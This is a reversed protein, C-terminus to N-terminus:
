LSAIMEDLAVALQRQVSPGAAELAADVKQHYNDLYVPATFSTEIAATPNDQPALWLRVDVSWRYRGGIDGFRRVSAEVLVILAGPAATGVLFDQRLSPTRLQGFSDLAVQNDLATVAFGRAGVTESIRSALAAPAVAVDRSADTVVMTALLAQSQEPAQIAPSHALCGLLTVFLLSFWKM